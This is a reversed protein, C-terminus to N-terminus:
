WTPLSSWGLGLGVGARIVGYSPLSSGIGGESWGKCIFDNTVVWCTPLSSASPLSMAYRTTASWMRVSHKEMASPARGPASTHTHARASKQQGAQTTHTCVRVGQRPPTHARARSSGQRLPTPACACARARLDTRVKSSGRRRSTASWMRASHEEVASPARGDLGRM